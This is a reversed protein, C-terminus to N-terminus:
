TLKCHHFRRRASCFGRQWRYRHYLHRCQVSWRPPLPLSSLSYAGGPASVQTALRYGDSRYSYALHVLADPAATGSAAVQNDSHGAVYVATPTQLPTTNVMFSAPASPPSTNGAIDTVVANLTHTGDAFREKAYTGWTGKSDTQATAVAFQGEYLTINAGPAALGRAFVWGGLAYGAANLDLILTTAEPAALASTDTLKVM